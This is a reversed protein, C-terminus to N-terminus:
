ARPGDECLRGAEAYDRVPHALDSPSWVSALHLLLHIRPEARGVSDLTTEAEQSAKVVETVSARGLLVLRALVHARAVLRGPTADDNAADRLDNAVTALRQPDNAISRGRHFAQAERSTQPDIRLPVGTSGGSGVADPDVLLRSKLCAWLAPHQSDMIRDVLAGQDLSGGAHAFTAASVLSPWTAAIRDLERHAETADPRLKVWAALVDVRERAIFEVNERPATREADLLLKHVFDCDEPTREGRRGREAQALSILTESEFPGSRRVKLSSRLFKAALDFDDPRGRGILGDAHCKALRAREDRDSSGIAQAREYRSIAEEPSAHPATRWANGASVLTAYLAAPPLRHQEILAIALDLDERAGRVIEGVQGPSPRGERAHEMRARGRLVHAAVREIVSDPAALSPLAEARALYTQDRQGLVHRATVIAAEIVLRRPVRPIAEHLVYAEVLPPPLRLFLGDFPYVMQQPNFSTRAILLELQQLGTNM